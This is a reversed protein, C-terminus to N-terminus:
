NRLTRSSKVTDGAKFRKKEPKQIIFKIKYKYLNNEVNIDSRFSSIYVVWYYEYSKSKDIYFGVGM